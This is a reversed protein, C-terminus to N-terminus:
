WQIINEDETFCSIIRTYCERERESRRGREDKEKWKRLSEWKKAKKKEKFSNSGLFSLALSLFTIYYIANYIDQIAKSLWWKTLRDQRSEWKTENLCFHREIRGRKRRRREKEKRGDECKSLRKQPSDEKERKKKRKRERQRWKWDETGNMEWPYKPREVGKVCVCPTIPTKEWGALCQHTDYIYSLSLSLSLSPFSSFWFVIIMTKIVCM